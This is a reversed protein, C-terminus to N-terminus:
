TAAESKAKLSDIFAKRGQNAVEESERIAVIAEARDTFTTNVVPKIAPSIIALDYYGSKIAVIEYTASPSAVRDGITFGLYAASSKLLRPKGFNHTIDRPDIM